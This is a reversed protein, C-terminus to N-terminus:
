RICICFLQYVYKHILIYTYSLLFKGCTPLMWRLDDYIIEKFRQAKDQMGTEMKLYNCTKWQQHCGERAYPKRGYHFVYDSGYVISCYYKKMRFWGNNHHIYAHAKHIIFDKTKKDVPHFGKARLKWYRFIKKGHDGRIISAWAEWDDAPIRIKMNCADEVSFKSLGIIVNAGGYDFALANPSYELYNKSGYFTYSNSAMDVAKDIHDKSGFNVLLSSPSSHHCLDRGFAKMCIAAVSQPRCDTEADIDKSDRGLLTDRVAGGYIYTPCGNRRLETLFEGATTRTGPLVKDLAQSLQQFATDSKYFKVEPRRKVLAYLKKNYYKSREWVLDHCAPKLNMSSAFMSSQIGTSIKIRTSETAVFLAAILLVPYTLASMM